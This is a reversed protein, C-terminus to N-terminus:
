RTRVLTHHRRVVETAQAVLAQGANTRKVATLVVAAWIAAVQAAARLAAAQAVATLAVAAQAAAVRAAAVREEAERVIHLVPAAAPAVMMHQVMLTPLHPSPRKALLAVVAHAVAAWAAAAAAVARVATVVPHSPILAVKRGVMHHAAVAMLLRLWPLM